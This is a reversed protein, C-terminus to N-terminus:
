VRAPEPVTRDTKENLTWKPIEFENVRFKVKGYSDSKASAHVTIWDGKKFNESIIKAGTDWAEFNFSYVQERKDGNKKRFVRTVELMFNTVFAEDGNSKEYTTLSPENTFSGVFQCSNM